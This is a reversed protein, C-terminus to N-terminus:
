SLDITEDGAEIATSIKARAIREADSITAAPQRSGALQPLRCVPQLFQGVDVGDFDLDTSEDSGMWVGSDVTREFARKGKPKPPARMEEGLASDESGVSQQQYWSGVYRKKRHRAGQVYNELSPDDDSSFVAPDSSNTFLQAPAVVRSRGRKRTNSFTQTESDWSVAPLRPLTPEEAM